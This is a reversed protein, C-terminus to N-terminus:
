GVRIRRRSFFLIHHRTKQVRLNPDCSHNIFEAGCGGVAGDVWCRPNLRFLYLTKRGGPKWIEDYRIRFQRLNLREGTYELVKRRPAIPETAFVGLHNIPSRRIRLSYRSFRPDVIQPPIRSSTM